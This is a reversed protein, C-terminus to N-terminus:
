DRQESDVNMMETLISYCTRVHHHQIHSPYLWHHIELFHRADTETWDTADLSFTKSYEEMLERLMELTVTPVRQGDEVKMMWEHAKFRTM